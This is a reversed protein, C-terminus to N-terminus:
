SSYQLLMESTSSSIQLSKEAACARVGEQKMRHKLWLAITAATVIVSAIACIATHHQMRAVYSVALDLM